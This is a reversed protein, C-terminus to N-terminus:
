AATVDELDGLYTKRQVTRDGDDTGVSLSYVRGGMVGTLQDEDTQVFFGRKGESEPVQLVTGTRSVEGGSRDSLYSIEVRDGREFAEFM